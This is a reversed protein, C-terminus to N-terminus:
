KATASAVLSTQVTSFASEASALAAALVSASGGGSSHYAQEALSAANLAKNATDLAARQTPSPAIAGAQVDASVKALFAHITQLAQNAAADTQDVAGAPLPAVAGPHACGALLALPLVLAILKKM